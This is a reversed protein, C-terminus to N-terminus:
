FVKLVKFISVDNLSQNKSKLFSFMKQKLLFCHGAPVSALMSCVRHRLVQITLKRSTSQNWLELRRKTPDLAAPEEAM